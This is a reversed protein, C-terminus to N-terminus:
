ETGLPILVLADQPVVDGEMHNAARIADVSARCGKALEWLEAGALVSRLIVSPRERRPEEEM